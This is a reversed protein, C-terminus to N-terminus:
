FSWFQNSFILFFELFNSFKRIKKILFFQKFSIVAERGWEPKKTLRRGVGLEGVFHV